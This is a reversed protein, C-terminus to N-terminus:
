FRVVAGISFVDADGGDGDYKTFDGRIGFKETAFYKAGVGYAVGDFDGSASGIGPASVKMETNAYGVRGFMHFKDSVPARVVGFAGFSNDLEVTGLGVDDDKVGISAEGEVGLHRTFFYSGRATLAGVDASGVDVNSYSANLEVDGQAVAVPAAAMVVALSALALKM